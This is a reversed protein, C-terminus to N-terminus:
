LRTLALKVGFGLFVAGTLRDLATLVNPGALARSVRATAAILVAFWVLSLAVHISALVFSFAGANVGAPIFQPLFTLYFVGVKPNLANTLFGQRFDAAAGPAAPGDEGAPFARRPAILLRVGLWALYAAGTWKLAVFAAPSAALVAGLGVSVLAAWAICGAGIGLAAGWAARAGKAAATRLVLATDLGPTLTLLAAAVVFALLAQSITM